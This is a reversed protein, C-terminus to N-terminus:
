AAGFAEGFFNQMAQWSRADASPSYGFGPMPIGDAATNTFAHKAGGCTGRAEDATEGVRSITGAELYASTTPRGRKQSEHLHVFTGAMPSVADLRCDRRYQTASTEDNTELM